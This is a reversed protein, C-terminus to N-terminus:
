VTQVALGQLHTLRAIRCEWIEVSLLAQEPM